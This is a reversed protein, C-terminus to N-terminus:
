RRFSIRAGSIYAAKAECVSPAFVSWRDWRSQQVRGHSRDWLKRQMACFCTADCLKISIYLACVGM